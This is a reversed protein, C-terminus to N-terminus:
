SHGCYCTDMSTQALLKSSPVPPYHRHMTSGCTLRFDPPFCTLGVFLLIDLMLDIPLLAIHLFVEQSEQASREYLAPPDVAVRGIYRLLQHLGKLEVEPRRLDFSTLFCSLM